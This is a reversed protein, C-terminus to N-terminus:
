PTTATKGSEKSRAAPVGPNAAPTTAAAAPHTAGASVGVIIITSRAARTIRKGVRITQTPITLLVQALAKRTFKTTAAAPTAATTRVPKTSIGKAKAALAAKAATAAAAPGKTKLYRM